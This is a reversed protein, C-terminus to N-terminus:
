ILKKILNFFKYPMYRFPTDISTPTKLVARAHSFADFSMKGHYAGLGSNGVGGFPLKGNVIHMITDNICCGGSWTHSLITDTNACGFYYLALPRERSNVLSIVEDIEEFDLAPFIPGFIEEQMVPDAVTVNCLITPSIYREAMNTSGGYFVDGNALYSVLRTFAKDSVIRSFHRSSKIAGDYLQEFQGALEQLFQEKIASHVLIYDPAICTQGANLCKGWAIRKAALKIDSDKDVICPSKGGLELVVPTLNKAAAQMVIRGLSPSGTFFIIDWRLDLLQANVTRDGNVIAVYQEPFTKSIMESLVRSVNPTYPSPKLVATCGAAIAGILPNLLLQVPYNWPAIILANGLPQSEIRSSSPFLTAPTSVRRPRAWAKIHRLAYHLETQVISIECLFSEEESKHLDMWLAEYLPHEWKSLAKQLKKLSDKRFKIDLTDFGSFYDNQSKRIELIREPATNEM